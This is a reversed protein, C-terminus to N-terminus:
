DLSQHTSYLGDCPSNSRTFGRSTLLPANAAFNDNLAVLEWSSCTKNEETWFSLENGVLLELWFLRLDVYLQHFICHLSQVDILDLRSINELIEVFNVSEKM